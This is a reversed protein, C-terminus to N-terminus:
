VIMGIYRSYLASFGDTQRDPQRDSRGALIKATDALILILNAQFSDADEPIMFYIKLLQYTRSNMSLLSCFALTYALVAM